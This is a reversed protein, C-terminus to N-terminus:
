FDNTLKYKVFNLYMDTHSHADISNKVISSRIYRISSVNDTLFWLSHVIRGMPNRLRVSVHKLELLVIKIDCSAFSYEWINQSPFVQQFDIFVLLRFRTELKGTGDERCGM